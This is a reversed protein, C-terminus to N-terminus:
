GGPLGGGLGLERWEAFLRDLRWRRLGTEGEVHVLLSTGDASLHLKKVPGRMRLTAIPQGAPTWLRVRGDASGTVLLQSGFAAGSVAGLHADALRVVAGTAVDMLGVEGGAGGVLARRGDPAVALGTVANPFVSWSAAAGTAADVRVVLGDRRGVLVHDRGPAVVRLVQGAQVAAPDNEWVVRGDPSGAPVARLRRGELVWLRGDPGFRADQLDDAWVRRGDFADLRDRGAERLSWVFRSGAASCDAIPGGRDAPAYPTATWPGEGTRGPHYYVRHGSGPDGGTAMVEHHDPTAAFGILATEGVLGCTELAGRTVDLWEVGRTGAVALRRGDASVLAQTADGPPTHTALRHGSAVDWLAVRRAHEEVSVLLDGRPSFALHKVSPMASAGGALLPRAPLVSDVGRVVPVHESGSM